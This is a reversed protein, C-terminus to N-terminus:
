LQVLVRVLERTWLSDLLYPLIDTFFLQLVGGISSLDAAIVRHARYKLLISDMHEGHGLNEILVQIVWVFLWSKRLYGMNQEQIFSNQTGKSSNQRQEIM